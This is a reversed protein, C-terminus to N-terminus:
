EVIEIGNTRTVRKQMQMWWGPLRQKRRYAQVHLPYAIEILNLNEEDAKEILEMLRHTFDGAFNYQWMVLAQEGPNLKAFEKSNIM